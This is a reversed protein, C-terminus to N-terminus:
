AVLWRLVLSLPLALLGGDGVKVAVDEVALSWGTFRALFLLGFTFVPQLLQLYTLVGSSPGLRGM